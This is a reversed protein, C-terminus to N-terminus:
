TLLVPISGSLLFEPKTLEAVQRKHLVAHKAGQSITRRRSVLGHDRDWHEQDRVQGKAQFVVCVLGAIVFAATKNM